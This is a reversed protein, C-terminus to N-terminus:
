VNKNEEETSEGEKRRVYGEVRSFVPSSPALTAEIKRLGNLKLLLCGSGQPPISLL